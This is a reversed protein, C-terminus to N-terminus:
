GLDATFPNPLFDTLHKLVPQQGKGGLIVHCDVAAFENLVQLCAGCPFALQEAAVWVAIEQWKRQGSSVGAVVASREACLTLGYSLNEVNTGTDVAGDSWRIAAGVAFKSYPSYSNEAAAEAAALLELQDANM